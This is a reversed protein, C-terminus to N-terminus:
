IASKDGVAFSHMAAGELAVGQFSRPQMATIEIKRSVSGVVEKRISDLYRNIISIRAM